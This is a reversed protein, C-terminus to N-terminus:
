RKDVCCVGVEKWLTGKASARTSFSYLKVTNNEPKGKIFWLQTDLGYM